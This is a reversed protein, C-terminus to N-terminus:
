ESAVWVSVLWVSALVGSAVESAQSNQLKFCKIKTSVDMKYFITLFSCLLNTDEYRRHMASWRVEDCGM